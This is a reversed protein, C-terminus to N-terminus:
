RRWAADPRWSAAWAPLDAAPMPRAIGYGQALECGLSLLMEGHAVTEVGEAIVQRRFAAALGVVGRIIALDDADELMDRVFSQDIKLVEAPLRKLYTLSSYGTGFDDMAFRVGVARCALMVQSVQAIDEMASTELVELELQGPQVEPHAALLAALRKSFDEQQLQRASINVSVPLDLGEARWAIIQRLATAIVWEGIEVSIDHDETVPLFAAPALLGREPHQWRILAEAGIVEGSRMNVKPQYFLVFERRELAQAIHELSERQTKVAEDHAVDFLHYRNKGAQKAVYMAQDAHRMLQDADAADQPYVTVGISASVQLVAEGVTLPEAAAQLLRELVPECDQPRALDVLVAVFEDGGIRSLTDGERLAAKMRQALAILLQDGVDHGHKDNVAKFGDLDLFAVALSENRRQSQAMAQQLRDALLVRNPQSTLADYHAIHELQRQHEKMPTIDTFLSVYNRTKGSADRVASITILQAYVEGSKRQNWIEGDWHGISTLDRWMAAYFEPGHRGSQLMRHSRGIVEERDYGTIDTFTDNVEILRGEADTIAIGERAHTFVSAALQLRMDARTRDIALAALRAEDEILQLDAPTPTSAQRHYVAFTGLVKGQASLIPQSWCAGLGAQRTIDLFQTMSPDSEIDEVVTREGTFAATGCAGVGPGILLGELAQNFFAPLSPAAGQRLRQGDDDLLLISCLMTPDLAEVERAILDLVASLPAKESLLQLVRQHHQERQHARRSETVDAIVGVLGLGEGSSPLFHQGTLHGWFVSQDGRQYCRELDISALRNALLASMNQRAVAREAPHVLEVYEKGILSAQPLAFMEAMRRNAHTIRGQMDVLYIAVSSTDMIQKLLAERGALEESATALDQEARMRETIDTAIAIVGVPEKGAGLLKVRTVEVLHPLGDVFNLTEQSRHAGPQALCEADARQRAAALEAGLLEPLHRCALFREEAIGISDCFTKNVFRYRGDGGVLWIGVPAHNLIAHLKAETAQVEAVQADLQLTMSRFSRALDGVEDDREVPLADIPRGLAHMGVTHAMQNLPKALVRALALAVVSALAIFLLTLQVVGLGLTKSQALVNELPTYLGLVVFRQEALLGFPVRVFAALSPRGLVAADGSELMVHQSRGELVPVTAPLEDQILFQRGTEFGFTKAADPHILYDGRKNTLLLQLDQPLDARILDFLDALDVDIVVVGFTVGAHSHVPAAIRLTPKGFGHHAGQERNLGIQSVYFQGAPLRLAEFFYPQHSKEQLAEGSVVVSGTVSDNARDVRILERGYDAAGILRVQSYEPRSSLLGTFIAALVRGQEQQAQRPMGAEALQQVQPLLSVFRADDSIHSLSDNFRQALVQTATLLKDQSSMILLDRSRDYVYYGTLGTSLAGLLALWFGLKIGISFRM